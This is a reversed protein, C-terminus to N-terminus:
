RYVHFSMSALATISKPYSDWNELTATCDADGGTWSPTPGLTFIQGLSTPFIGNSQTYVLTGGQSCKVTVWPYATSSTSVKFTVRQGFHATGDTSDLYVIDITGGGSTTTGGGSRHGGRALTSLNGGDEQSPTSAVVSPGVDALSNSQGKSNGCGVTGVTLTVISALIALRSM